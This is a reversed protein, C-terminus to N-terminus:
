LGAWYSVVQTLSACARGLRVVRRWIPNRRGAARNAENREASRRRRCLAPPPHRVPQQPIRLRVPPLPRVERDDALWAKPVIGVDPHYADFGLGVQDIRTGEQKSPPPRRSATQAAATHKILNESTIKTHQISDPGLNRMQKHSTTARHAWSNPFLDQPLCTAQPTHM